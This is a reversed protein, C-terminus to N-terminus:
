CLKRSNGFAEDLSMLASEYKGASEYAVANRLKLAANTM